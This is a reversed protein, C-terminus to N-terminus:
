KDGAKKSPLLKGNTPVMTATRCMVERTGREDTFYIPQWGFWYSVGALRQFWRPLWLRKDYAWLAIARLM